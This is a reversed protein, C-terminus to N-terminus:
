KLHDTRVIGPEEQLERPDIAAGKSRWCTIDAQHPSVGLRLCEGLFLSELPRYTSANQPSSKPVMLTPFQHRLWKLAYTDLPIGCFGRRSHLLFFVATKHSIGPIQMLTEVTPETVIHGGGFTEAAMQFAQETLAYKGLKQHRLERRWDIPGKLIAEFPTWSAAGNEVERIVELFRHLKAATQHSNKGAVCVCFFLFEELEACSRTFNTPTHPNIM